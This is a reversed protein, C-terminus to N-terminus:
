DGILDVLSDLEQDCLKHMIALIKENDGNIYAALIEGKVEYIKDDLDNSFFPTITFQNLAGYKVQGKNLIADCVNEHIEQYNMIM